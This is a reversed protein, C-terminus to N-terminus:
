HWRVGEKEVVKKLYPARRLDILDVKCPLLSEEIEFRVKALKQSLDKPSDLAIDIDSWETDDGRARSGFLYIRSDPFATILYDRLEEITKM